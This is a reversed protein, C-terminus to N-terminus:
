NLESGEITTNWITGESREWQGTVIKDVDFSPLAGTTYCTDGDMYFTEPAFDASLFSKGTGEVLSKDTPYYHLVFRIERDAVTCVERKYVLTNATKHISYANEPNTSAAITLATLDSLRISFESIDATPVDITARPVAVIPAEVEVVPEVPKPPITEGKNGDGCAALITAATSMMLWQLKM